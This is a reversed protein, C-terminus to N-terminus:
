MFALGDSVTYSYQKYDPCHHPWARPIEEGVDLIHKQRQTEDASQELMTERETHETRVTPPRLQLRRGMQQPVAALM